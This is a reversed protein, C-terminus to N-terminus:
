SHISELWVRECHLSVQFARHPLVPNHTNDTNSPDVSGREYVTASAAPASDTCRFEAGDLREKESLPSRSDQLSKNSHVYRARANRRLAHESCSATDYHQLCKERREDQKIAVGECRKFCTYTCINM